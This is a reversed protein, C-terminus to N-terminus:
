PQVIFRQVGRLVHGADEIAVTHTGSAAGRLDWVVEEGGLVPGSRWVARGLIDRVVLKTSNSRLSPKGLAFTVSTSAPNPHVRLNPEEAQEAIALPLNRLKLRSVMRQAPDESLADTYGHYAGAIYWISDNLPVIENISGYTLGQYVFTGCGEDVLTTQLLAGTSDFASISARPFGDVDRYGGTVVYADDGLPEIATVVGPWASGLLEGRGFRHTNHFTPDLSGDPMFRVLGLTDEVGAIHFLGGALVRGDALPHFVYVQGWDVGTYFSPDLSGDAFVRHVYSTPQGEYVTCGGSCIFKGDPLEEFEYIPGNGTRHTRTTDLYGQNSFWSFSYPGVFGRAEDSLLHRGSMLIRGDSYVHYDGGQTSSFYPGLNM